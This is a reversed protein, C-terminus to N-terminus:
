EDSVFLPKDVSFTRNAFTWEICYSHRIIIIGYEAFLVKYINYLFILAFFTIIAPTYRLLLICSEVSSFGFDCEFYDYNPDPRVSSNEHLLPMVM